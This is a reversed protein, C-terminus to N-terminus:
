RWRENVNGGANVFNLFAQAEREWKFWRVWAGSKHVVVFLKSNAGEGKEIRFEKM